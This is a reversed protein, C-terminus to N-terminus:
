VFCFLFFINYAFGDVQIKRHSNGYVCQMNNLLVNIIKYFIDQILTKNIAYKEALEHPTRYTIDQQKM